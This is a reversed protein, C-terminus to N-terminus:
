PYRHLSWFGRSAATERPPPEIMKDLPTFIRPCAFASFLMLALFAVFLVEYTATETPADCTELCSAEKKEDVRPDRNLPPESEDVQEEPICFPSQTQKRRASRRREPSPNRAMRAERLPMAKREVRCTISYLANRPQKRLQRSPTM